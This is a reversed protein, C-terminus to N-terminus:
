FFSCGISGMVQTRLTTFYRYLNYLFSAITLILFLLQKLLFVFIIGEYSRLLKMSKSAILLTNIRVDIDTDSLIQSCQYLIAGTRSKIIPSEIISLKINEEGKDENILDDKVNSESDFGFKNDVFDTAEFKLNIQCNKIYDELMSIMNDCKDTKKNILQNSDKKDFIVEILQLYALLVKLLINLNESYTPLPRMSYYQIINLIQDILQNFYNIKLDIEYNQQKLSFLCFITELSTAVTKLSFRDILYNGKDVINQYLVSHELIIAFEAYIYDLNEFTMAVICNNSEGNYGYVKGIYYLLNKAAFSIVRDQHSYAELFHCFSTRFFDNMCDESTDFRHISIHCYTIGQLLLCHRTRLKKYDIILKKNNQGSHITENAVQELKALDINKRYLHILEIIYPKLSQNCEINFLFINFVLLFNPDFDSQHLLELFHDFFVQFTNFSLYGCLNQITSQYIDQLSKTNLNKFRHNYWNFSDHEISEYRDMIFVDENLDFDLESVNVFTRIFEFKHQDIKFFKSIGQNQLVHFYGILIRFLSVLSDNNLLHKEQEISLAQDLRKNRIMLPIKKILVFLEEHLLNNIHGFEEFLQNSVRNGFRNMFDLCSPDNVYYALQVRLLIKAFKVVFKQCDVMLLSSSLKQLKSRVEQDPHEILVDIVRVFIKELNNTTEDFWHETFDVELMSPELNNVNSSYIRYPKFTIYISVNLLDILSTLLSNPLLYYDQGSCLSILGFITSATRPLLFATKKASHDEIFYEESYLLNIDDPNLSVFKLHIVLLLDVSLKKVLYPQKSQNLYNTLISILHGFESKSKFDTRSIFENFM